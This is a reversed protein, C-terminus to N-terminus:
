VPVGWVIPQPQFPPKLSATVPPSEAMAAESALFRSCAPECLFPYGCIYNPCLQTIQKYISSHFSVGGGGQVNQSNNGHFGMNGGWLKGIINSVQNALPLWPCLLPCLGLGACFKIGLCLQM